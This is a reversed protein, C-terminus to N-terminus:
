GGGKRGKEVVYLKPIASGLSGLGPDLWLRGGVAPAPASECARISGGSEATTEAVMGGGGGWDKEM